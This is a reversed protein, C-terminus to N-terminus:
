SVLRIAGRNRSLIYTIPLGQEAFRGCVGPWRRSSEDTSDDLVKFISLRARTISAPFAEFSASIV